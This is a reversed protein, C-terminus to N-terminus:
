AGGPLPGGDDTPQGAADPAADNILATVFRKRERIEVDLADLKKQLARRRLKARELAGVAKSIESRVKMAPPRLANKAM